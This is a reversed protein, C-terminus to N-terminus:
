LTASLQGDACGPTAILNLPGGDGVMFLPAGCNDLDIQKEGLPLHVCRAVITFRM